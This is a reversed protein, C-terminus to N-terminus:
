SSIDLIVFKNLVSHDTKKNSIYGLKNMRFKDYDSHTFFLGYVVGVCWVVFLITHSLESVCARIPGGGIGVM